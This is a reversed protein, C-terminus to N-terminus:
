RHKNVDSVLDNISGEKGSPRSFCLDSIYKEKIFLVVHLPLGNICDFVSGLIWSTNLFNKLFCFSQSKTQTLIFNSGHVLWTIEFRPEVTNIYKELNTLM